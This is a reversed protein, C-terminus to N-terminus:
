NRDHEQQNKGYIIIDDSISVCGDLGELAHRIENNFLEPSASIGYNLRKYHRLGVHTSFVTINRSERSLPIRHFGHNMDLKSFVTAGNLKFIIDNITPTIHRERKIAENAKRMDVCIRIEGNKKPAVVVPCVWDTPGDVKEIIDLKELRELEKEVKERMHFPIRRHHQSVAPVNEDIHLKIQRDKM